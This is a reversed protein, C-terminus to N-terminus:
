AEGESFKLYDDADMLSDLEEVNSLEIAAIWSEYPEENIKEPTDALEENIEVITGSVPSYIDSASKVSEVVGINDGEGIETDEEPLEVFVINGLANQAYDTIGLYAKNGEARVWEHDKSYKLGELIKM